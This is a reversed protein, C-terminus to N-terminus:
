QVRAWNIIWAEVKAIGDNMTTTHHVLLVHEGSLQARGSTTHHDITPKEIPLRINQAPKLGLSDTTVEDVFVDKLEATAFQYTLDIESNDDSLKPHMEVTTGVNFVNPKSTIIGNEQPQLNMYAAQRIFQASAIQDNYCTIEPKRVPEPQAM